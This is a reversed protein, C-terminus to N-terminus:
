LKSVVPLVSEMGSKRTPLEASMLDQVWRAIGKRTAVLDYKAAVEGLATDLLDCTAFRDDPEYALAKLVIPEIEPPLDPRFQTLPPLHPWGEKGMARLRFVDLNIRVNSLLQYAIVGVGYVDVRVDLSSGLRQEPPMYAMTGKVEGAETEFGRFNPDAHAIGFDSVKIVGNKGILVNALKVDRHILELPKGDNTTATHAAHLGDCISRLISMVIPLPAPKGLIRALEYLRRLDGGDVYEMAIYCDEGVGLDIIEVVNPHNLMTALRAEAVLHELVSKDEVLEPKLVKLAVPKEFGAPGQAHALFVEAMGGSGLRRLLLYRGIQRPPMGGNSKSTSTSPVINISASLSSSPSGSVVAPPLDPMSLPRPGAGGAGGEAGEAELDHESPQRRAFVLAALASIVAAVLWLWRTQTPRRQIVLTVGNTGVTGLALRVEAAGSVRPASTLPLVNSGTELWVSSGHRELSAVAEGVDLQRSIVLAGGLKDPEESRTHSRIPVVEALALGHAGPGLYIGPTDPAAISDAANPVRLLLLPPKGRVWQRVEIIEHELPEFSLERRTLDRATEADTYVIVGLQRIEAMTTARAHLVAETQKISGQLDRGMAQLDAESSIGGSLDLARVAFACAMLGGAFVPLWRKLGGMAPRESVAMTKSERPM